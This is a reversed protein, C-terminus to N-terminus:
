RAEPVHRPETLRGVAPSLEPHALLSADRGKGVARPRHRVRM